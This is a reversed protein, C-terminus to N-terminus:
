DANCAEESPWQTHLLRPPPGLCGRLRSVRVGLKLSKSHCSGDERVSANQVLVASHETCAGYAFVCWGNYGFHSRLHASSCSDSRAM